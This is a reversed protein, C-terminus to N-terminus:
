IMAPHTYNAVQYNNIGFQSEAPNFWYFKNDLLIFMGYDPSFLDETILQFFERSVGGADVGKEGRFTVMFKRFLKDDSVKEMADITDEVLHDRRVTINLRLSKIFELNSMGRANGTIVRCLALQHEILKQKYEQKTYFLKYKLNLSLLAPYDLFDKNKGCFFLKLNQILLGSFEDSSFSKSNFMCKSCNFASFNRLDTLFKSLVIFVEDSPNFSENTLLFLTLLNQCIDNIHKIIRPLKELTTFLLERPLEPLEVIHKLIPILCNRFDSVEYYIEFTLALILGRVHYLTDSPQKLFSKIMRLFGAKSNQFIEANTKTLIVFEHVLEDDIELNSPSLQKEFNMLIWPFLRHESVVVNFAKRIGDLNVFDHTNNSNIMKRIIIDFSLLANKNRLTIIFDEMGDCLHSNHNYELLSEIAYLAAENKDKFNHQFTLCSACESNPCNIRGCGITYQHFFLNVLDEVDNAM